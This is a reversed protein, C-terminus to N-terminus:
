ERWESPPATPVEPRRSSRCSGPTALVAFDVVGSAPAVAEFGVMVTNPNPSDWPNPPTATEWTRWDTKAPSMDHLTLRANDLRLELAPGASEGPKGPTIMGWRVVAGPKLGTLRDRIFVEGSSLLAVGRRVTEAQGAYVPSMDVVAHPFPSAASFRIIEAFGRAIQLRGDIVLTNHGLNSQRFIKWRDSRQASSWLSMGRSEIRHYGEAGLDVAWRVGDADLVFTGIDMQGHPASPSGAKLAVFTANPDSWSARFVAIPTRGEGKWSLPMRVSVNAPAKEMWLLATPLLRDSQGAATKPDLRRLRKALIGRELLLWDPREFRKSLWYLPPEPGRGAGGDSYNFFLGSPGTVVNIYEGTRDFGPAKSLGFDTGLASELEAILLVNYTTGYGWYGPGEPYSGNPAFAAMSRPVNRLARLVTKAALEPEDEMVALAGAVMGGHCVQGWNNSARVWHRYRRNNPVRLAKDLIADRITERSAPDLENYLWDYGLALGFAMEAVDLYHSPNWDAFRAAALMETRCRDAYERKGTLHYATALWVVRKLCTRSVGLLRRGRKIRRVPAVPLIADAQEIVARALASREATRRVYEPLAALTATDALIRPHKKPARRVWERVQDLKIKPPYIWDAGATVTSAAAVGAVAIANM